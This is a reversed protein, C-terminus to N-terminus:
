PRVAATSRAKLEAIEQQQSRVQAALASVAANLQAVTVADNAAVGPAVNMIRRKISSSGVSVTGAVNAVSAYGIAIAQGATAQALPGIAVTVNASAVSNHGFAASRGGSAKSFRGVATSSDGTATSDTGIAIPGIHGSGNGARANFGIAIAFDDGAHSTTGVAVALLNTALAGVLPKGFPTAGDGGGIAISYDGKAMAFTDVGDVFSNSGGLTTSYAGAGQFAAYSGVATAGPATGFGAFYGISTGLKGKAFASQGVATSNDATALAVNGIATGSAGNAAADRGVATAGPGSADAQCNASSLLNTNAANGSNCGAMAGATSLALTSVVAATSVLLGPRRQLKATFPIPEISAIRIRSM